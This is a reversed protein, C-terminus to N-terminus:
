SVDSVSWQSVRLSFYWVPTKVFLIDNKNYPTWLTGKYKSCVCWCAYTNKTVTVRYSITFVLFSFLLSVRLERTQVGLSIHISIWLVMHGHPELRQIWIYLMNKWSFSNSFAMQRFWLNKDPRSPNIVNMKSIFIDWFSRYSQIEHLIIWATYMLNLLVLFCKTIRPGRKSVFTLKIGLMKLLWMGLLTHLPIVKRNWFMLLQVMSTQSHIPLKM